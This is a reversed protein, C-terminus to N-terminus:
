VVASQLVVSFPGQVEPAIGASTTGSDKSKIAVMPPLLCRGMEDADSSHLNHVNAKLQRHTCQM